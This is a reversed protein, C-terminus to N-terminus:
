EETTWGTDGLLKQPLSAAQEAAADLMRQRRWTWARWNAQTETEIEKAIKDAMREADQARSPSLTAHSQFWRLAPVADPGLFRMYYLDLGAGEGTVERAHRVNYDAIVRDFNTFCCAYLVAFLALMNTNVLWINTRQLFIRALILALGLAVLGMWILAAIRLYTLSYVEVYSVTRDIASFVLFINQAVWLTVLWVSAPTRYKRCREDFTVLVYGGALLATVVLPYASAHAYRAFTMGEPLGESGGWLYAIDLGNQVAFLLNFVALSVVLSSRDLWRDFDATEPLGASVKGLRSRPRLLVWCLCGAFGWFMWRLPCLFERLEISFNLKALYYSILPNASKFLLVFVLAMLLPPMARYVSPMCLPKARRGKAKIRQALRSDRMWQRPIRLALFLVDKVWVAGDQLGGRKELVLLTALGLCAMVARLIGTEEVLTAALGCLLFAVAKGANTKKWGDHFLCLAALALVIFVGAVWGVPEKYFFWDAVGVLFLCALLKAPITRTGTTTAM